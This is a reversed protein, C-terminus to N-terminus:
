FGGLPQFNSLVSWYIDGKRRLYVLFVYFGFDKAKATPMGTEPVGEREPAVDGEKFLSNDETM